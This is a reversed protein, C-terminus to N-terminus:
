GRRRYLICLLFVLVVAIAVFYWYERL